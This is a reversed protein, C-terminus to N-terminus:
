RVAASWHWAKLHVYLGFPGDSSHWLQQVTWSGGRAVVPGVAPTPLLALNSMVGRGHMCYVLLM